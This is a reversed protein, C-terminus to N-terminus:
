YLDLTHSNEKQEENISLNSITEIVQNTALIATKLGSASMSLSLGSSVSYARTHTEYNTLFIELKKEIESLFDTYYEHESGMIKKSEQLGDELKASQIIIKRYKLAKEKQIIQSILTTIQGRKQQGKANETLVDQPDNRLKEVAPSFLELAELVLPISQRSLLIQLNEINKYFKKRNM